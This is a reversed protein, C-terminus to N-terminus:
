PKDEQACQPGCSMDHETAYRGVDSPLADLFCPKGKVRLMAHGISRDLLAMRKFVDPFDRRIKNWYGSGGKVCGICNNNKYGLEYMAPRRIAAEDLMKFCDRRTIQKEILPFRLNMDWNRETFKTARRAEEYTFGFMHVDSPQEWEKRVVQKLARTCPAGHPFVLGREHEWVDWTTKFKDSALKLVRTGIWHEVDALFRMNDPHESASTDCYCVLADANEGVVIKALAASSVGCSFWVVSRGDVEARQPIVRM